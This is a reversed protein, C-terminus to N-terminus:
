GGQISHLIDVTDTPALSRTLANPGDIAAGNVFIKVFRRVAGTEDRLRRQLGPYRAEVENLLAEVNAATLEAKRPAKFERLVADFRVETMRVRPSFREGYYGQRQRSEM